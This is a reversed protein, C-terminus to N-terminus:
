ACYPYGPCPKTLLPHTYQRYFAIAYPSLGASVMLDPGSITVGSPAGPVFWSVFAKGSSATSPGFDLSAAIEVATATSVATSPSTWASAPTVADIPTGSLVRYSSLSFAFTTVATAGTGCSSTVCIPLYWATAIVGGAAPATFRAKVTKILTANVDWFMFEDVTGTTAPPTAPQYLYQPTTLTVSSGRSVPITGSLGGPVAAGSPFVKSGLFVTAPSTGAQAAAPMFMFLSAGVLVVVALRM